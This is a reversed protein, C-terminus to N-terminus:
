ANPMLKGQLEHIKVSTLNEVCILLIYMSFNPVLWFWGCRAVFVWFWGFGGVVLWM